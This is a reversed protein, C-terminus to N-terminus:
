LHSSGPMPWHEVPIKGSWDGDTTARGELELGLEAFSSIAADPLMRDNSLSPRPDVIPAPDLACNSCHTRTP